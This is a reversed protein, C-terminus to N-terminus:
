IILIWLTSSTVRIILLLVSAHLSFCITLFTCSLNLANEAFFSVQLLANGTAIDREPSEEDNIQVLFKREYSKRHNKMVEDCTLSVRRAVDGRFDFKERLESNEDSRIEDIINKM